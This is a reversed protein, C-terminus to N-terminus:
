SLLPGDTFGVADGKLTVIHTNWGIRSDYGYPKVEVDGRDYKDMWAMALEPDKIQLLFYDYVANKTPEIDLVTLVSDELLERHARIKM